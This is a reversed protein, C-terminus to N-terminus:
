SVPCWLVGRRSVGPCRVGVPPTPATCQMRIARAVAPDDRERAWAAEGRVCSVFAFGFDLEWHPAREEVAIEGGGFRWCICICM